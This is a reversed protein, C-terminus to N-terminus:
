KQMLLRRAAKFKPTDTKTIDDTLGWMGYRSVPSSLTFYMFLGGGIDFWNNTIDRYVLEEMRPDRMARIRNAINQPNGGGSDPGGEYCMPEVGYKNAVAIMEKRMKVSDNSAQLMADILQDVSASPGAHETNFYPAMAIGHILTRPEGYTAKVWELMDAYEAPQIAWWSMVPKARKGFEATFAKGIEVTKAAHRRRRWVFKDTNGDNNLNSKGSKVEAEAAMQNYTAQLFGWNWVENSYEVYVNTKAPINAKLFKALARTYAASAPAPVNVWIDKGTARALEAVYEWAVGRKYRDTSTQTADTPLRRQNWEITNVPDGFFINNGNTDLWDMFRMVPFLKVADLFPKHFTPTNKLPYGPRLIRLNKIGGNTGSFDLIMLAKGKALTLEGESTNTAAEYKLNDVKIDNQVEPAPKIQAKGTFSLKYSGSVDIQYADPDDMPPAWAMTPRMDFVVVRADELPWGATDMKAPSGDAHMWPRSTKMVDVFELGRGGIGELGIGLKPSQAPTLLLAATILTIM